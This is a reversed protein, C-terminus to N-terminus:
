RKGGQNDTREPSTRPCEKAHQDRVVWTDTQSPTKDSTFGCPCEVWFLTERQVYPRGDNWLEREARTTM